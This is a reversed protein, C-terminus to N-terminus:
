HTLVGSGKRCELTMVRPCKFSLTGLSFTLHIIRKSDVMLSNNSHCTKTQKPSPGCSKTQGKNKGPTKTHSYNKQGEIMDNRSHLERDKMGPPGM